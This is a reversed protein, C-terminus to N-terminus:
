KKMDKEEVKQFKDRSYGCALSNDAMIKKANRQDVRDLDNKAKYDLTKQVYTKGETVEAPEDAKDGHCMLAVGLELWTSPDPRLEVSKRNLEVSKRKDGRTGAIVRVIFWDPVIRYFIGLTYYFQAELPDGDFKYGKGKSLELGKLWVAEVEKALRLSKLVGKLTGVRGISIGLQLYCHPVKTPEKAICERALRESLAYAKLKVDDPAERKIEYVNILVRSYRWQIEPRAEREANQMIIPFLEVYRAALLREDLWAMAAKEDDMPYPAPAAAPAEPPPAVQVPLASAEDVKTPAPETVSATVTEAPAAVEQASVGWSALAALGAICAWRAKRVNKSV